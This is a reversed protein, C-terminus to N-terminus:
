KSLQLRELKGTKFDSLYEGILNATIEETLEKKYYGGNDPIDLLLIYPNESKEVTPLKAMERLRTGISSKGFSTFFILEPGESTNAKAKALIEAHVTLAEKAAVQESDDSNELFLIVAPKSNLDCGYSEITTGLDEVPEPYFPYKFGEPDGRVSEVGSKTIIAGTNYEFVVLSPIGDVEFRESLSDIRKDGHPIALWPMGGYYKKFDSDTRDSTCFIIELNKGESKLKNYFTVLKPTFAQCPGCWHASFYLFVIKDSL